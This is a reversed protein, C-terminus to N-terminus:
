DSTFHEKPARSTGTEASKLLKYLVRHGPLHEEVFDIGAATIVFNSNETSRLCQKEQLYGVTFMLHERPFTMLMELDLISIGADDPNTRRRHYLLCLVGMRRSAEGDIGTAFDELEFVHMSQNQWLQYEMDYQARRDPDSLTEYAQTLLLFKDLDGSDTNDPHLRSALLKYVRVITEQEATPSVQLLEYYDIFTPSHNM